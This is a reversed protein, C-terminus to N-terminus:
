AFSICTDANSAFVIRWMLALCARGTTQGVGARKGHSADSPLESFVDVYSCSNKGAQVQLLM